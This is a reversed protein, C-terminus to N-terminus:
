SEQTLEDFKAFMADDVSGKVMVGQVTGTGDRLLLFRIKGSSRKNYLWGHLRVEEGIHRSLDEIYVRAM